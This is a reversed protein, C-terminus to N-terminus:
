LVDICVGSFRLRCMVLENFDCVGTSGLFMGVEWYGVGSLGHMKHWIAAGQVRFGSGKMGSKLDLSHLLEMCASVVM